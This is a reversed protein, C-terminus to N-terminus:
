KEIFRHKGVKGAIEQALERPNKGLKKALVLAANSSYDGHSVDAPVEVLFSPADKGVLKELIKKIEDKM